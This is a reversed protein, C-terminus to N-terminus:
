RNTQKPSGKRTLWNLCGELEGAWCTWITHATPPTESNPAIRQDSTSTGMLSKSLFIVITTLQGSSCHFFNSWRFDDTVQIEAKTQDSKTQGGAVDTICALLLVILFMSLTGNKDPAM